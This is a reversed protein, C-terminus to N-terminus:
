NPKFGPPGSCNDGKSKMTGEVSRQDIIVGIDTGKACAVETAGFILYRCTLPGQGRKCVQLVHEESPLPVPDPKEPASFGEVILCMECRGITPNNGDTYFDDEPSPTYTRNCVQCTVTTDAPNQSM